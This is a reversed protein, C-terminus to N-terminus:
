SEAFLGNLTMDLFVEGVQEATLSSGPKHWRPMYNIWSLIMRATLRPDTRRLIGLDMARVLESRLMTEFEDRLAVFPGPDPMQEITGFIQSGVIWAERHGDMRATCHRVFARIRSVPDDEAQALAQRTTKNLQTMRTGYVAKVLSEKDPFYYYLAAKTIDCREAVDKLSTGNFGRRGFLLAAEDIIQTRRDFRGADHDAPDEPKTRRVM